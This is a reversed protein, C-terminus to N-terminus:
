GRVSEFDGDDRNQRLDDRFGPLAASKQGPHVMSVHAEGTLPEVWGEFHGVTRMAPQAASSSMAPLEPRVEAPVAVPPSREETPAVTADEGGSACASLFFVIAPALARRTSLLPRSWM